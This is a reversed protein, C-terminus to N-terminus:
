SLFLRPSQHEHQCSLLALGPLSPGWRAEDFSPVHTTAIIEFMQSMVRHVQLQGMPLLKASALCANELWSFAYAQVMSPEDIGWLAAARAWQTVLAQPTKPAEFAKIGEDEDLIKKLAAGQRQDELWLEKSERSALMLENLREIAHADRGLFAERLRVLIPLETRSLGATYIGRLWAFVDAETNLLGSEHASELGQSHAFSGIPLANSALRLLRLNMIITSILAM